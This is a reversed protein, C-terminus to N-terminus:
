ESSAVKGTKYKYELNTAQINLKQFKLPPQNKIKQKKIKSKFSYFRDNQPDFCPLTIQNNFFQNENLLPPTNQNPQYRRKLRCEEIKM